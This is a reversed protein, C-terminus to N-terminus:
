VIELNGDYYVSRRPPTYHVARDLAMILAVVGDFKDGSNRKSPKVNGAADMEVAM